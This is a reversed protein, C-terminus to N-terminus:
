GITSGLFPYQDFELPSLVNPPANRGPGDVSDQIDQEDMNIRQILLQKLRANVPQMASAAGAVAQPSSWGSEGRRVEKRM